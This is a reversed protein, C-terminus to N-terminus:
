HNTREFLRASSNEEVCTKRVTVTIVEPGTPDQNFTSVIEGRKKAAVDGRITCCRIKLNKLHYEVIELM